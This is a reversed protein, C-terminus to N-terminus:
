KCVTTIPVTLSQLLLSGEAYSVKMHCDSRAASWRMCSKLPGKFFAQACFLSTGCPDAAAAEFLQPFWADPLPLWEALM